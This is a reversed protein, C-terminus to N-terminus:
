ILGLLKHLYDRLEPKLIDEADGASKSWQGKDLVMHNLQNSHEAGVAAYQLLAYGQEPLISQGLVKSTVKVARLQGVHHLKTHFHGNSDVSRIAIYDNAYALLISKPKKGDKWISEQVENQRNPLLDAANATVIKADDYCFIIKLERRNKYIPMQFYVDTSQSAARQKVFTGDNHWVLWWDTERKPPNPLVVDVTAERKNLLQKVMDEFQAVIDETAFPNISRNIRAVIYNTLEDGYITKCRGDQRIYLLAGQGDKKVWVPRESPKVNIKCYRKGEREKFEFDLLSAALSGCRHNVDHLIKLKYGDESEPYIFDDDPDSSLYPFDNRVDVISHEKDTLGIALCGGKTNMFSTLVKIIVLMQEQINAESTSASFVISSKYELDKREPGLDVRPARTKASSKISSSNDDIPDPNSVVETFKLFGNKAFDIELKIDDGINYTRDTYFRHEAFDDEITYFFNDKNDKQIGTVTFSDISGAKYHEKFVTPYDQIFSPTGNVDISRLVVNLFPPFDEYQCKLINYVPYQSKDDCVMIFYRGNRSVRMEGVTELRYVQKFQYEM